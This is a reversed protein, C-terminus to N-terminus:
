KNLFWELDEEDFIFVEEIIKYGLIKTIRYAVVISPSYRGNELSAITQRTVGIADALEQQTMDKEQRIERVRNKM